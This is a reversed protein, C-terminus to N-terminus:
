VNVLGVLNVSSLLNSILRAINNELVFSTLQSHTQQKLYYRVEDVVSDCLMNRSYHHVVYYDKPFVTRQLFLCFLFSSILVFKIFYNLLISYHPSLYVLLHTQCTILLPM